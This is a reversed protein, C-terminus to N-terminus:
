LSSLDLRKGLYITLFTPHWILRSHTTGPILGARGSGLSESPSPGLLDLHAATDSM